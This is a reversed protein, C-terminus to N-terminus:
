SAALRLAVSGRGKQRLYVDSRQGFAIEAAHLATREEGYRETSRFLPEQNDGSRVLVRWPEFALRYARYAGDIDENPEFVEDLEWEDQPLPEERIIDVFILPHDSM